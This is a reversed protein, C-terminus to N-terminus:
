ADMTCPFNSLLKIMWKTSSFSFFSFTTTTPYGRMIADFAAIRVEHHENRNLFLPLFLDKEIGRKVARYRLARVAMARIDNPYRKIDKRYLIDRLKTELVQSDKFNYFVSMYHSLLNHDKVDFQEFEEEDKDKETTRATATMPTTIM